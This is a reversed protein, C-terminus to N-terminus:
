GNGAAKQGSPNRRCKADGRGGEVARRAEEAAKLGASGGILASFLRFWHTVVLDFM